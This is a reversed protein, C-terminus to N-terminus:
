VIHTSEWTSTRAILSIQLRIAGDFEPDIEQVRGTSHTRALNQKVRQAQKYLNWLHYINHFVDVTFSVSYLSCQVRQRCVSLTICRM